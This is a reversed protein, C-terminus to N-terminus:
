GRSKQKRPAHSAVTRQKRAAARQQRAKDSKRANATFVGQEKMVDFRTRRRNAMSDMVITKPNEAEYQKQIEVGAVQIIKDAERTLSPVEEKAAKAEEYAQDYKKRAMFFHGRELHIWGKHNLELATAYDEEAKDWQNIKMYQRARYIHLTGKEGATRSQKIDQNLMQILAETNGATSSSPFLLFLSLLLPLSLIPM